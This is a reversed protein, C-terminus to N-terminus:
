CNTGTRASGRISRGVGSLSVSIGASGTPNRSSRDLFVPHSLRAGCVETHSERDREIAPVYGRVISGTTEIRM